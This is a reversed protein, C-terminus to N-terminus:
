DIGNYLDSWNPNQETILDLKRKRNGSKLQKEYAIAEEISHFGKYYVLLNVGYRATFSKAHFKTKHEYIRQKLKSTVGVYLVQHTKNTLIYVAGGREM